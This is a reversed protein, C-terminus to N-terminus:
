FGESPETILRRAALVLLLNDTYLAELILFISIKITIDRFTRMEAFLNVYELNAM